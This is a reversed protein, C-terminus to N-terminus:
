DVGTLLDIRFVQKQDDLLWQEIGILESAAEGEGPHRDASQQSDKLDDDAGLRMGSGDDGVAEFGGGVDNAATEDPKSQRYGLARGVFVM